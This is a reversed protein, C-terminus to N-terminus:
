GNPECAKLMASFMVLNARQNWRGPNENLEKNLMAAAQQNTMGEICAGFRDTAPRGRNLLPQLLMGDVLGMAYAEQADPALLLFQQGTLFGNKVYVGADQAHASLALAGATIAFALVKSKM